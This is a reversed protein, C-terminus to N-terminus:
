FMLRAHFNKDVEKIEKIYIDKPLLSNLAKKLSDNNMKETDFHAYQNKAHVKSDTRGSAHINIKESTVKKLVTEIENQITRGKLQKQYGVFDSGDYSFNMLYRMKGEWIYLNVYHAYM